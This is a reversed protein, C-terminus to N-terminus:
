LRAWLHWVSVADGSNRYVFVSKALSLRVKFFLSVVFCFLVRTIAFPDLSGGVQNEILDLQQNHVRNELRCRVLFHPVRIERQIHEDAAALRFSRFTLMGGVWLGCFNALALFTRSGM